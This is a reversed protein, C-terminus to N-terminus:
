IEDLIERAKNAYSSDSNLLNNLVENALNKNGTKLLSLAKYWKAPNIFREDNGNIVINLTNIAADFNSIEIYSMGLYFYAAVNKNSEKEFALAANKFDGQDYFQYANEKDINNESRETPSIINPYRQYYSEFIEDNSKNGYFLFAILLISISAAALLGKKISIEKLPKQSELKDAAKLKEKLQKNFHYNIGSIVASQLKVETAFNEDSNMYEEFSRRESETFSKDKSLYADIQEQNYKFEKM